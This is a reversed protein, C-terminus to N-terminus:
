AQRRRNLHAQYLRRVIMNGPSSKKGLGMEAIMRDTREKVTPLDLDRPKGRTAFYVRMSLGLKPDLRAVDAMTLGRGLWEAYVRRIFEVPNEERKTRRSYLEPARDPGPPGVRGLAECLVAHVRLLARLRADNSAKPNTLLEEIVRRAEGICLEEEPLSGNRM